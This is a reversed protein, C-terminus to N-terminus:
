APRPIGIYCNTITNSRINSGFLKSNFDVIERGFPLSGQSKLRRSIAAGRSTATIRTTRFKPKTGRRPAM